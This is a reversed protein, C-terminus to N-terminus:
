FQPLEHKPVLILANAARRALANAEENQEREIWLVNKIRDEVEPMITRIKHWLDKTLKWFRREEQNSDEKELLGHVYEVIMRSDTYITAQVGPYTKLWELAMLFATVEARSSDQVGDLRGLLDEHLAGRIAVGFGAVADPTGQSPCSGDTHIKVQQLKRQKSM